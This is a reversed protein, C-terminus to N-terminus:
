KEWITKIAAPSTMNAMHLRDDHHYTEASVWTKGLVIGHEVEWIIKGVSSYTTGERYADFNGYMEDRVLLTNVVALVHFILFKLNTFLDSSHSTRTMLRALLHNSVRVGVEIVFVSGNMLTCEMVTLYDKVPALFVWRAKARDGNPKKVNRFMLYKKLDEPILRDIQKATPRYSAGVTKIQKIFLEMPAIDSLWKAQGHALSEDGASIHFTATM